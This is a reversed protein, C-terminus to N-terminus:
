QNNKKNSFVYVSSLLILFSCVMLTTIINPYQRNLEMPSTHKLWIGFYAWLFVMGYAVNKDKLMRFIGVLSAVLLIIITWIQSSIGFGMWNLSVLLITTNAVTAITIWGFYINFPLKILINEKLTFKKNALIDAIKILSFLIVLMFLLALGIQLYHWSFIWGINAVSSLIFYPNIKSILQKQSSKVSFFLQYVSYAGLLLYILGWISFTLGTPAFLNPYSDSIEGPTLGNIPLTVALNNILIVSVYAILVLIKLYIQKIKM